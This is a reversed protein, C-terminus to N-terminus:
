ERLLQSKGLKLFNHKMKPKLHLAPLLRRCVIELLKSKKKVHHIATSKDRHGM